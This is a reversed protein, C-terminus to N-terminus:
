LATSPLLPLKTSITINGYQLRATTYYSRNITDGRIVGTDM